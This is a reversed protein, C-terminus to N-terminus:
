AEDRVRKDRAALAAQADEPHAMAAAAVEYAEAVAALHLDHRIYEPDHDNVQDECFTNESHYPEVWQLWIRKPAKENAMTLRRRHPATPPSPTLRTRSTMKLKHM